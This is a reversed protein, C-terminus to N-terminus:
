ERDAMYLSAFRLFLCKRWSVAVLAGGILPGFAQAVNITAGLLGLYAPRKAPAIVKGVLQQSLLKFVSDCKSLSVILSGAVVGAGGIGAIARGIILVMSSPAAACIISGVEFILMTALYVYKISLEAFLKGM